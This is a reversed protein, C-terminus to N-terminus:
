RGGRHRAGLYHQIADADTFATDNGIERTLKRAKRDLWLFYSFIAAGIIPLLWILIIQNRKQSRAYAPARGIYLSAAVNIIVIVLIVGAYIATEM